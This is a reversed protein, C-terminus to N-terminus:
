DDCVCNNCFLRFGIGLITFITNASSTSFASVGTIRGINGLQAEYFNVLSGPALPVRTRLIGIMKLKGDAIMTVVSVPSSGTELKSMQTHEYVYLANDQFSPNLIGTWDGTM